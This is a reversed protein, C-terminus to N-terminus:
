AGRVMDYYEEMIGDIEECIESPIWREARDTGWYGKVYGERTDIYINPGGLAVAIRAGLYDGRSSITYEIDLVDSFYSYLDCDEGNEEAAEREEDTPDAEYLRRLDAAIGDVYKQLENATNSMTNDEEKQEDTTTREAEMAALEAAIDAPTINTFLNEANQRANIRELAERETTTMTEAEKEEDTGEAAQTAAQPANETETPQQEAEAAPAEQPQQAAKIAARTEAAERRLTAAETRKSDIWWQATYGRREAENAEQEAKEAKDEQRDAQEARRRIIAAVNEATNAERDEEAVDIQVTYYYGHGTKEDDFDFEIIENYTTGDFNRIYTQKQYPKDTVREAECPRETPLANSYNSSWGERSFMNLDFDNAMEPHKKQMSRLYALFQAPTVNHREIEIEFTKTTKM